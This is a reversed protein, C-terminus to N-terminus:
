SSGKRWAQSSSTLLGQLTALKLVPYGYLLNEEPELTQDKPDDYGKWKVQFM